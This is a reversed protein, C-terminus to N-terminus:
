VKKKSDTDHEEKQVHVDVCLKQESFKFPNVNYPSKYSPFLNKERRRTTEEKGDIEGVYVAASFLIFFLKYKRNEGESAWLILKTRSIAFSRVSLHVLDTLM